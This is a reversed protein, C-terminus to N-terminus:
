RGKVTKPAIKQAPPRSIISSPSRQAELSQIAFYRPAKGDLVTFARPKRKGHRLAKQTPAYGSGEELWDREVSVRDARARTRTPRSWAARVRGLIKHSAARRAHNMGRGVAYTRRALLIPFIGQRGRPSGDGAGFKPCSRESDKLCARIGWLPRRTLMVTPRDTDGRGMERVVQSSPHWSDFQRPEQSWTTRLLRSGGRSSRAVHEARFNDTIPELPRASSCAERRWSFNEM